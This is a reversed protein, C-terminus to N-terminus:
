GRKVSIVREKNSNVSLETKLLKIIKINTDLCTSLLGELLEHDNDDIFISRFVRDYKATFFMLGGKVRIYVSNKDSKRKKFSVKKFFIIYTHVFLLNYTFM